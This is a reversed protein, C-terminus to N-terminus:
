DRFPGNSAWEAYRQLWEALMRAKLATLPYEVIASSGNDLQIEQSVHPKDHSDRYVKFAVQRDGNTLIIGHPKRPTTM